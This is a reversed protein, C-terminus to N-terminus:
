SGAKEIDQDLLLEDIADLDRVDDGITPSTITRSRAMRPKRPLPINHKHHSSELVEIYREQFEQTWSSVQWRQRIDIIERELAAVQVMFLSKLAEIKEHGSQETLLIKTQYAANATTANIYAKFFRWLMWGLVVTLLALWFAIGYILGGM